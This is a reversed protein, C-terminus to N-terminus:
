RLEEAAAAGWDPPVAAPGAPGRYGPLSERAAPLPHRVGPDGVEITRREAGGAVLMALLEGTTRAGAADAREVLTGPVLIPHGQLGDWTPVVIASPHIGHLEIMSTVTEPGVWAHDDPWVLVASTARVERRASRFARGVTVPGAPALTAPSGALAAAVTDRDGTPAVVIPIAGGSWAVDAIRRCAPRGGADALGSSRFLM